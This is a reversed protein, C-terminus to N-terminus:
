HQLSAVRSVDGGDVTTDAGLDRCLGEAAGGGGGRHHVSMTTHAAAYTLMTLSDLSSVHDLTNDTIWLDRFGRAEARQAVEGIAAVEVAHDPSRHPLSMGLSIQDKLIM